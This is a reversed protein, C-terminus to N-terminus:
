AALRAAERAGRLDPPDRFPAVSLLLDAVCGLQEGGPVSPHRVGRPTIPTPGGRCHHHAVLVGPHPLEVVSALYRRPAPGVPRSADGAPRRLLRHSLGLCPRDRYGGGGDGDDSVHHDSLGLQAVLDRLEQPGVGARDGIHAREPALVVDRPPALARVPLGPDDVPATSRTPPGAGRRRFLAASVRRGARGRATAGTVAMPEDSGPSPGPPGFGSGGSIM